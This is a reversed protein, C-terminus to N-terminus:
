EFGNRDWLLVVIFQNLAEPVRIIANEVFTINGYNTKRKLVEEGSKHKAYFGEVIGKETDDLSTKVPENKLLKILSTLFPKSWKETAAKGTFSFAIRIEKQLQKITLTTKDMANTNSPNINSKILNKIDETEINAIVWVGVICQMYEDESMSHIQMIDQKLQGDIKQKTTDWNMGETNLVSEEAAYIEKISGDFYLLLNLLLVTIYSM